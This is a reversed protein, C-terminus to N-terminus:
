RRKCELVSSAYTCHLSSHEPGHACQCSCCKHVRSEVRTVTSEVFANVHSAFLADSDLISNLDWVAGKLELAVSSYDRRTNRYHLALYRNHQQESSTRYQTTNEAIYLAGNSDMGFGRQNNYWITNDVIAEFTAGSKRILRKISSRSIGKGQQHIDRDEDSVLIIIPAVDNRKLRLLPSGESTINELAYKLALYGDEVSGTNRLKACAERFGALDYVQRGNNSRVVHPGAHGDPGTEGKSHGFGVVTYQNPKGPYLGIGHEELSVSLNGVIQYLRDKYHPEMSRSEDVVLIVDAATQGCHAAGAGDTVPHSEELFHTPLQTRCLVDCQQTAANFLGGNAECLCADTSPMMTCAMSGGSPSTANEACTCMYPNNRERQVEMTKFNSTFAATFSARQDIFGQDGSDLNYISWSAGRLELALKAYDTQTTGYAHGVTANYVKTYFEGGQGKFGVGTHAVGLLNERNGNSDHHFANDIVANLVFGNERLLQKIQARSINAVEERDEDSIFIMNHRVGAQRRWPVNLLAHQIAEYGDEKGSDLKAELQSNASQYCEIPFLNDNPSVCSSTLVHGTADHARGFGVLAYLNRQSRDGTKQGIGSATLSDELYKLMGPLWAHAQALSASEDVVVIVDTVPIGRCVHEDKQYQGECTVAEFDSSGRGQCELLVSMAVLGLLVPVRMHLRLICFPM